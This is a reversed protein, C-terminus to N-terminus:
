LFSGDGQCHRGPESREFAAHPLVVQGASEAVGPYLFRITGVALAGGVLQAAIFALVSRAGAGRRLAGPFPGGFMVDNM